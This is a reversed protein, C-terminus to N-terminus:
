RSLDASVRNRLKEAVEEAPVLFLSANDLDDILTVDWVQDLETVSAMLQELRHTHATLARVRVPREGREVLDLHYLLLNGVNTEGVMPLMLIKRNDSQGYGLHLHQGKM